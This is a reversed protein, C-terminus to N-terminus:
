KIIVRLAVSSCEYHNLEIIQIGSQICRMKVVDLAKGQQNAPGSRAFGLWAAVKLLVDIEDGKRIYDM